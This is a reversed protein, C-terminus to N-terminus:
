QMVKETRLNVTDGDLSDILSTITLLCSAVIENNGEKLAEDHTELHYNIQEEIEKIDQLNM